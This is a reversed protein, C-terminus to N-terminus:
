RGGRGHGPNAPRKGPNGEGNGPGQGTDADGEDDSEEDGDDGSPDPVPAPAPAPTPSPKPAPEPTSKAAIAAEVAEALVAAAREIRDAEEATLVGARRSRETTALLDALARQAQPLRGAVLAEDVQELSVAIGPSDVLPPRQDESCGAVLVTTIALPALWRTARTM